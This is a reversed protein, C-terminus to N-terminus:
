LQEVQYGSNQLLQVIGQNGVMHGAGVVVFPTKGSDMLAKIKATMAKNRDTLLVNQVRKLTLDAAFSANMLQDITAADGSKWADILAQLPGPGKQLDELTMALFAEQERASFQEFMNLQWTLSELEVIPKQAEAAERLFHLDIGLKESYGARQLELASLTLAALWPKQQQLLEIPAGYRHAATQLAQWTAPQIHAKLSDGVPYMGKSFLTSLTDPSADADLLSAEVVLIDADQYAEMIVADLPYLSDDGFHISGLLYGTGAESSVRWLPHLDGQTQAMSGWALLTVIISLLIRHLSYPM